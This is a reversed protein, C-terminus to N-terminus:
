IVISGLDLLVGCDLQLAENGGANTAWQYTIANIGKEKPPAALTDPIKISYDPNLSGGAFASSLSPKGQLLGYVADNSKIASQLLTKLDADDIKNPNDSM